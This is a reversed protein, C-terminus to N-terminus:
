LVGVASSCLPAHTLFWLMGTAGYAWLLCGAVFSWGSWPLRLNDRMNWWGWSIGLCGGASGLVVGWWPFLFKFNDSNDDSNSQQGHINKLQKSGLLSRVSGLPRDLNGIGRHVDRFSGINRESNRSEIYSLFRHRDIDDVSTVHWRAMACQSGGVEQERANIRGLVEELSVFAMNMESDFHPNRRAYVRDVLKNEPSHVLGLKYGTTLFEGHLTRESEVIPKGIVRSFGLLEAKFTDVVRGQMCDRQDSAIRLIGHLVLTTYASTLVVALSLLLLWGTVGFAM